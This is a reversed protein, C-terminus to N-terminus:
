TEINIWNGREFDREKEEVELHIKWAVIEDVYPKEVNENWIEVYRYSEFDVISPVVLINKFVVM